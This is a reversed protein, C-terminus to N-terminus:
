NLTTFDQVRYNSVEERLYEIVDMMDEIKDALEEEVFFTKMEDNNGYFTVPVM